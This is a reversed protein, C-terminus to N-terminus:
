LQEDAISGEGATTSVGAASDSTLRQRCMGLFPGAFEYTGGSDCNLKRLYGQRFFESFLEDVDSESLPEGDDVADFPEGDVASDDERATTSVDASDSAHEVSSVALMEKLEAIAIEKTEDDNLIATMFEDKRASTALLTEHVKKLADHEAELQRFSAMEQKLIAVDQTSILVFSQETSMERIDAADTATIETELYRRKTLLM